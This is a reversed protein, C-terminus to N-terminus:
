LWKPLCFFFVVRVLRRSRLFTTTPCACMWLV